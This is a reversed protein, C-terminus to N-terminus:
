SDPDGLRCVDFGIRQEILRGRWHTVLETAAQDLPYITDLQLRVPRGEAAPYQAALGGNLAFIIYNEIKHELQALRAEPENAWDWEAVMILAYEGTAPNHTILDVVNPNDIPM